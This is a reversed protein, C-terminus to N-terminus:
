ILKILFGVYNNSANPDYVVEDYVVCNNDELAVISYEKTFIEHHTRLIRNYLATRMSTSGRFCVTAQPNQLLFDKLITVLTAMIQVIDGNNSNAMDDMTGDELLDGYSLFYVDDLLSTEFKVIKEIRSKGMSIFTYRSYEDREFAYPMQGMAGITLIAFTFHM